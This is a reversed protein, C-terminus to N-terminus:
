SPRYIQTVQLQPYIVKCIVEQKRSGETGSGFMQNHSRVKFYRKKRIVFQTHKLSWGHCEFQVFMFPLGDLFKVQFLIFTEPFHHLDHFFFIIEVSPINNQSYGSLKQLSATYVSM